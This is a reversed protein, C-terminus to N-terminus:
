SLRPKAAVVRDAEAAVRVPRDLHVPRAVVRVAVVHARQQLPEALPLPEAPRGVAVARLAHPGRRAVAAAKVALAVPVAVRQVRLVM